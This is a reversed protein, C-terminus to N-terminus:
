WSPEGGFLHGNEFLDDDFLFFILFNLYILYSILKVLFTSLRDRIKLGFIYPANM